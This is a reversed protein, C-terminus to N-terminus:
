RGGFCTIGNHDICTGYGDCITGNEDMEKEYDKGGIVKMVEKESVPRIRINLSKCLQMESRMGETIEDGFVWMEDCAWLLSLGAKMGLEREEPKHDDLCLAYFHPVVPAAGCRLTYETYRKAWRLNCSINRESSSGLPSCIYVRKM